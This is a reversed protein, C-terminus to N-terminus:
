YANKFSSILMARYNLIAWFSFWHQVLPRLMRLSRRGIKIGQNKIVLCYIYCETDYFCLLLSRNQNMSKGEFVYMLCLWNIFCEVICHPLSPIAKLFHPICHRHCIHGNSQFASKLITFFLLFFVISLLCLIKGAVYSAIILIM